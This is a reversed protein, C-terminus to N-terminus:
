IVPSMGLDVITRGMYDDREDILTEALRPFWKKFSELDDQIATSGAEFDTIYKSLVHTSIFSLEAAGTCM